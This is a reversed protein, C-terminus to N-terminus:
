YFTLHPWNASLSLSVMGESASKEVAHYQTHVAESLASSQLADFPNALHFWEQYLRQIWPNMHPPLTCTNYSGIIQSYTAKMKQVWDKASQTESKLQGGGNICGSPCAMVEVYHYPPSSSTKLKRVVNQLNRFGYASAFKLKPKRTRGPFLVFFRCSLWFQIYAVQLVVERFDSNRVTRVFLNTSSATECLDSILVQRGYLFQAAAMLVFELYGGASSQTLSFDSPYRGYNFWAAGQCTDSALAEYAVNPTTFICDMLSFELTSLGPKALDHDLLMREIEGSTLVCDVDRTAYIDSYFDERSAELKKDYCPMVTVHYIREPTLNNRGAFFQKVMSGMLQQPSKTASIYKLLHGHTKEAYCIWGPCASALMPLNHDESSKFQSAENYSKHRQLFEKAAEILSVDRAIAIDFVYDVGLRKLFWSLKNAAEQLGGRLEFKAAFSACTQPSLSVVVVKLQDLKGQERCATNSELIKYLEHHSQM